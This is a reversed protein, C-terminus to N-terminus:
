WSPCHGPGETLASGLVARCLFCLAQIGQLSKGISERTLEHIQSQGMKGACIGLVFCLPRRIETTGTIAVTMAHCGHGGQTVGHGRQSARPKVSRFHDCPASCIGSNMAPAMFTTLSTDAMTSIMFAMPHSPSLCPSPHPSPSPMSPSLHPVATPIATPINPHSIRPGQSSSQHIAPCKLHVVVLQSAHPSLRSVPSSKM